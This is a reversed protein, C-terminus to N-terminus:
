KCRLQLNADKCTQDSDINKLRQPSERRGVGRVVGLRILRAALHRWLCIRFIGHYYFKTAYVYRQQATAGYMRGEWNSWELLCYVLLPM